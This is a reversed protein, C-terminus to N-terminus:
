KSRRKIVIGAAAAVAMAAYAIVSADGTKPSVLIIGNPGCTYSWKYHQNNHGTSSSSVCDEAIWRAYLTMDRTPKICEGPEFWAGDCGSARTSWGIFILGKASFPNCMVRTTSGVKVRDYYCPCGCGGNAVYTITYRSTSGSNGSATIKYTLEATKEAATLKATYTGKETPAAAYEQGNSDFYKIDASSVSLGTAENFKDAGVLAVLGSKAELSVEVKGGYPCAPADTDTSNSSVSDASCTAIIKAGSAAYTWQCTHTTEGGNGGDGNDGGGNDDDGEDGNDPDVTAIEKWQAYLDLYIFPAASGVAYSTGSGDAETNWGTFSHSEYTFSCGAITEDGWSDYDVETTAYTGNNAHYTIHGTLTQPLIDGGLQDDDGDNQDDLDDLDDLDGGELDGTPIINQDPDGETAYAVGAFMTFTLCAALLFAFFKVRNNM